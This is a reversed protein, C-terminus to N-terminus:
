KANVVGYVIAVVVAFIVAARLTTGATEVAPLPEAEAVADELPKDGTIMPKVLNERKVLAYFLIAALHLGVLGYLVYENLHHWGTIRDSTEKTIFKVLPGESAIDDNVFLGSVAQFGVAALLAFVSLAGLPNHGLYRHGGQGFLGRAYRWLAAPGFLFSSFRAYRTGALGWVLRFAILALAAYGCWFHYQVWNGGLKITVISGTITLVLLWHFLRTPLDWIRIRRTTTSPASASATM